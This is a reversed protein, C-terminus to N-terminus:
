PKSYTRIFLVVMAIRISSVGFGSNINVIKMFNMLYM